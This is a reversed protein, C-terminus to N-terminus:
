RAVRLYRQTVNANEIFCAIDDQTIKDYVNVVVGLYRDAWVNHSKGLSGLLQFPQKM